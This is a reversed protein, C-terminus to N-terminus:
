SIVFIRLNCGYFTKNYLGRSDSKYVNQLRLWHKQTYYALTNSIGWLMQVSPKCNRALPSGVLSLALALYNFILVLFIWHESGM